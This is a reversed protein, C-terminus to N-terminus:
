KRGHLRLLVVVIGLFSALLLVGNTVTLSGVCGGLQGYYLDDVLNYKGFNWEALLGLSSIVLLSGFLASRKWLFLAFIALWVFGLPENMAFFLENFSTALGDEPSWNPRARECDELYRLDVAM